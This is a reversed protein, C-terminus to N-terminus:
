LGRQSGRPQLQTHGAPPGAERAWEQPGARPEAPAGPQTCHRAGPVRSTPPPCIRGPVPAARRQQQGQAAPCRPSVATSPSTPRDTRVLVPTQGLGPLEAPAGDQEWPPYSLSDGPCHSLPLPRQGTEAGRPVQPPLRTGEARVPSHPLQPSTTDENMAPFGLDLAAWERAWAWLQHLPHRLRGPVLWTRAAQHQTVARTASPSGPFCM